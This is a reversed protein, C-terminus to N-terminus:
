LNYFIFMISHCFNFIVAAAKAQLSKTPRIAILERVMLLQYNGQKPCPSRDLSAQLNERQRTGKLGCSDQTIPSILSSSAFMVRDAM